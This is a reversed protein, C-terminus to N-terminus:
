DGLALGLAVALRSYPQENERSHTELEVITGYAQEFALKSEALRGDMFNITPTHAACIKTAEVIGPGTKGDFEVGVILLAQM